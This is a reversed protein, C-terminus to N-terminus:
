FFIAKLTNFKAACASTLDSVGYFYTDNWENSFHAQHIDPTYGPGMVVSAFKITNM